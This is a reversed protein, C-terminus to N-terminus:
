LSRQRAKLVDDYLLLTRRAVKEWDQVVAHNRITSRDWEHSLAQDLASAFADSTRDSFAGLEPSVVIEPIGGARTVVVPLGCAMAELLVNPWGERLTALAFIDAASYWPTL